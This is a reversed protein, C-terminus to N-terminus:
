VIVLRQIHWLYWSTCVNGVPRMGLVKTEASEGGISQKEAESAPLVHCRVNIAEDVSSFVTSWACHGLSLALTM